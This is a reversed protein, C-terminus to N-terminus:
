VAWMATTHKYHLQHWGEFSSYRPGPANNQSYVGCALCRYNYQACLAEWEEKTYSGGALTQRTRYAHSRAHVPEPNDARWKRNRDLITQRNKAYTRQSYIAERGPVAKLWRKTAARAKEPNAKRWRTVAARTEERHNAAWTRAYENCCQKCWNNLKDRMKPNNRFQATPKETHCRRCLKTTM